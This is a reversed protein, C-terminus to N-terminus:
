GSVNVPAPRAPERDRVPRCVLEFRDDGGTILRKDARLMLTVSGRLGLLPLEESNLEPDGTTTLRLPTGESRYKNAVFSGHFVRRAVDGQSAAMVARCSNGGDTFDAFHLEIDLVRGTTRDTVTGEFVREMRVFERFKVFSANAEAIMSTVRELPVQVFDYTFSETEGTIKRGKREANVIWGDPSDLLPGGQPVMDGPETTLTMRTAGGKPTEEQVQFSRSDAWGGDNRIHATVVGGKTYQRLELTLPISLSRGKAVAKGTFLEARYYAKFESPVGDGTTNSPPQGDDVRPTDPQDTAVPAVPPKNSPKFFFYLSISLGLLLLM